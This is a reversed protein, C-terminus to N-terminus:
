ILSWLFISLAALSQITNGTGFVTSSKGNLPERLNYDPATTACKYKNLCDSKCAQENAKGGCNQSCRTKVESCEFYLITDTFMLLKPEIKDGCICKYNLTDADCSNTIPEPTDSSYCVMKCAYVQRGCWSAKLSVDISKTYNVDWDAVTEVNQAFVIVFTLLLIFM